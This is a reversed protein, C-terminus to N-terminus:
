EAHSGDRPPAQLPEPCSHSPAWSVVLHCRPVMPRTRGPPHEAGVQTRSISLYTLLPYGPYNSSATPGWPHTWAQEWGPCSCPALSPFKRAQHSPPAQPCGSPLARQEPHVEAPGVRYKDRPRWPALPLFQWNLSGQLPTELFNLSGVASVRETAPECLVQSLPWPWAIRSKCLSTIAPLLSAQLRCGQTWM